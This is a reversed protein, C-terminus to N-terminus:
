PKTKYSQYLNVAGVRLATVGAIAAATLLSLLAKKGDNLGFQQFTHEVLPIGLIFVGLFTAWFTHFVRRVLDNNYISRILAKM